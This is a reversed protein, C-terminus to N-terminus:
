VKKGRGSQGNGMILAYLWWQSSRVELSPSHEDGAWPVSWVRDLLSSIGGGLM